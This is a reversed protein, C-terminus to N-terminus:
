IKVMHGNDAVIVRDGDRWVEVTAVEEGAVKRLLDCAQVYDLLLHSLTQGQTQALAQLRAKEPAPLQFNYYAYDHLKPRSM